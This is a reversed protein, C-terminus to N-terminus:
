GTDGQCVSSSPDIVAGFAPQWVTVCERHTSLCTQTKKEFITTKLSRGLLPSPRSTNKVRLTVIQVNSEWAQSIEHMSQVSFFM